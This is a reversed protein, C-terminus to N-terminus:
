SPFTSDTAVALAGVFLRCPMGTRKTTMRSHSSSRCPRRGLCTPQMRLPGPETIRVPARLRHLSGNGPQCPRPGCTAEIAVRKAILKNM